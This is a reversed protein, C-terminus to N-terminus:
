VEYAAQTHKKNAVPFNLQLSQWDKRTMIKLSGDLFELMVHEYSKKNFGILRVKFLKGAKNAYWNGAVPQQTTNM